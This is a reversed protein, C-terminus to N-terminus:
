SECKRDKTGELFNLNAIESLERASDVPHDSESVAGIVSIGYVKTSMVNAINYQNIGGIAIIPHISCDVIESLAKLGQTSGDPHSLSPFITGFTLYDLPDKNARLAMERTHISRGVIRSKQKLVISVQRKNLSEQLHIGGQFTSERELRGNYNCVLLARDEVIRNLELVLSWIAHEELDPERVRIM